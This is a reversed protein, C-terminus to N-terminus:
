SLKVQKVPKYGRHMAAIGFSLNKYGVKEWGSETIWDCLEDQNPWDEISEALYTYAEPNSSSIKAVLPLGKLLYTKYAKALLAIPPHSFECILVMGGSKTVRYMEAIAKKPDQINRLGFSITVADFSEDDFPLNMADAEVFNIDPRCQKGVAIMGPSFDCATVQVGSDAFPESSAGTGAAIDLLKQGPSIKIANYVKRRWIRDQGASLIDNTIDYKAAVDDFMSSVEKPDKDLSASNM